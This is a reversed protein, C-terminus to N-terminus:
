QVINLVYNILVPTLSWIISVLIMLRASINTLIIKFSKLIENLTLKKFLPNFDWSNNFFGWINFIQYNKM